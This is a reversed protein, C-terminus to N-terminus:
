DRGLEASASVLESLTGLWGVRLADYTERDLGPARLAAEIVARGRESEELFEPTFGTGVELAANASLARRVERRVDKELVEAARGSVSPNGALNARVLWDTDTLFAQELDPVLSPNGALEELVLLNSSRALVRQASGSIAPNAALVVQVAVKSDRALEIASAEDLDGAAALERQETDPLAALVRGQAM